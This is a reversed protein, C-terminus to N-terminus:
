AAVRARQQTGTDVVTYTRKRRKGDDVVGGEDKVRTDFAKLQAKSLAYKVYLRTKAKKRSILQISEGEEANMLINAEGESLSFERQLGPIANEEAHLLVKRGSNQLCITAARNGTLSILNQVVGVMSLGFARGRMYLTQTFTAVDAFNSELQYGLEDVVCIYKKRQSRVRAWIFNLTQFTRCTRLDNDGLQNTDFLIFRSNLDVNTFGNFMTGYLDPDVFQGLNNVLELAGATLRGEAALLPLLDSLIPQGRKLEM